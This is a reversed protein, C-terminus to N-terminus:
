EIKEKVWVRVLYQSNLIGKDYAEGKLTNGKRPERILGLEVEITENFKTKGLPNLDNEECWLEYKKKVEAVSYNEIETSYLEIFELVNNNEKALKQKAKLIKGPTKIVNGKHFDIMLKEM